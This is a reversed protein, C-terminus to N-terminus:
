MAASLYRRAADDLAADPIADIGEPWTGGGPISAPLNRAILAIDPLEGCGHGAPHAALIQETLTTGSRPMGVVFLPRPDPNGPWRKGRARLRERGLTGIVKATANALATTDGGGIMRRRAANAQHWSDMAQAYDGRGDFVKGLEYGLLARDPDPLTPHALLSRAQEVLDHDANGGNWAWCAV